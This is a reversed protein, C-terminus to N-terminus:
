SITERIKDGIDQATRRFDTTDMKRLQMLNENLDVLMNAVNEQIADEIQRRIRGKFLKIGTNYLTDHQTGELRLSLKNIVCAVNAVDFINKTKSSTQLRIDLDMGRGGVDILCKGTEEVKPFTKHHFYIDAPPSHININRLKLILSQISGAHLPDKPDYLDFATRGHNELVIDYPLVDKLRLILGELKFAMKENETQMMPLPIRMKEVLSTLIIIKLQNMAEPKWQIRGREDLILDQALRRLDKQLKLVLPDASVKQVLKRSDSVMERLNDRILLNAENRYLLERGRFMLDKGERIVEETGARDELRDPERLIGLLFMRLEHWFERMSENKRILDGTEQFRFILPDLARHGAFEEFLEKALVSVRDLHESRKIDMATAKLREASRAKTEIMIDNLVTFLNLLEEIARKTRERRNIDRMIVIFREMMEDKESETFKVFAGSESTDLTMKTVSETVQTVKDKAKETDGETVARWSEKVDERLGQTGSEVKGELVHWFFSFLDGLSRRFSASTALELGLMQAAKMLQSGRERVRRTEESEVLSAGGVRSAFDKERLEQTALKSERWLRQLKEDRNRELILREADTLVREADEIIREGERTLGETQAITKTDELTIKAEELGETMDRNTPLEGGKKFLDTMRSLRGRRRKETEVWRPKDYVKEEEEWYYKHGRSESEAKIRDKERVFDHERERELKNRVQDETYRKDYPTRTTTREAPKLL